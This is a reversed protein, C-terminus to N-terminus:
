RCAGSIYQRICGEKHIATLSVHTFLDPPQSLGFDLLAISNLEQSMLRTGDDAQCFNQWNRHKRGPSTAASAQHLAVVSCAHM